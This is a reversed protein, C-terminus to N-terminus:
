LTESDGLDTWGLPFGMLWEVWTPNLKGGNGARMAKREESTITGDSYLREIQEMGGSGGALKGYTPTPWMQVARGLTDTQIKGDRIRPATGDKYDRTTPTPWLHASAVADRLNGPQSRGPRTITAERNLAEPSKPPLGDMTTPTPWFSSGTADTIPEWPPQRFLAGNVTMGSPPLTELLPSEEWLSIVGFMRWSHTDPDYSALPTESTLGCTDHITRAQESVPLASRSAPTDEPSSTSM